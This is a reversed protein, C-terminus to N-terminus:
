IHETRPGGTMGAHVQGPNAVGAAVEMRYFRASVFGFLTWGVFVCLGGLMIAEPGSSWLAYFSYVTAIMAVFNTMMAKDRPVGSVNQITILAAMSMVYPVLNTVVALNVVRGFQENLEPSITMLALALQAALLILMGVIPVGTATAKGFVPLFYGVDASSKFVQAVTFQWGLLSGICAMVMLATIINAVTPNFMMSYALGFPASSAALEANPVIGAIVNTSIIYIIAAGITGGLVAIPVDREPNEVADANACASELGLFAWLTISIASGVATMFAM